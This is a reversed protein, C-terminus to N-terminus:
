NLYTEIKDLLMNKEYNNEFYELANNGLKERCESSSNKFLMINEVLHKASGAPGCYGCGAEKIISQAEGDLAAIIPMGCAMSSQVKAPITMAFVDSKELTILSADSKAFFKPIDIAPKRGIFNFYEEVDKQKIHKRLTELYRGDGIMNFRVMEKRKKLISAATVLIDLGQAFGINGAFTLNLVGDQPIESMPDTGEYRQYFEEAYQPWFVIKEKPVGRDNIKKIFSKSSTFIIDCRKYIYDVIKGIGGLLFKNQTKLVSAVNEPWLDLVYMMCKIKRRKAYWVAPLAQTIPSTEYVFVEDVKLKTFLSWFFGSVVFSFYNLILMIPNKKRPIIPIRIIEIGNWVEKRKNFLTYGEYFDGEPYNPIGTLVTVKYGRNVWEKCIDNSRFQEPYFVQSVVLIHKKM